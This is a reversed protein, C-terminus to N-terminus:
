SHCRFFLRFYVCPCTKGTHLWVVGGYVSLLNLLGPNPCKLSVFITIILRSIYRFLCEGERFNAIYHAAYHKSLQTICRAVFAFFSPLLSSLVPLYFFWSKCFSVLTHVLGVMFFLHNTRSVSPNARAAYHELERNGLPGHAAGMSSRFCVLVYFSGLLLSLHFM